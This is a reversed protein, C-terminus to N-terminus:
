IYNDSTNIGTIVAVHGPDDDEDDFAEEDPYDFIGQWEVGVPCNFDNVLQSLEPITSNFKYWFQFQPYFEKVFQGMEQLTIGHNVIKQNIQLLDVVQQQDIIVHHFSFLMQLSAPGCFYSNIQAVLVLNPLRNNALNNAM